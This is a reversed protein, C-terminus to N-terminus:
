SWRGEEKKFQALVRHAASEDGWTKRIFKPGHQTPIRNGASDLVLETYGFENFDNVLVRAPDIRMRELLACTKPYPTGKMM